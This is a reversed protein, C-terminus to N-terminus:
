KIKIIKNIIKNKNWWFLFQWLSDFRSTANTWLPDRCSILVYQFHERLIEKLNTGNRKENKMERKVKGGKKENMTFINKICSHIWNCKIQNRIFLSVNQFQDVCVVFDVVFDCENEGSETLFHLEQFFCYSLFCNM